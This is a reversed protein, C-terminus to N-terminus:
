DRRRAHPNQPRPLGLHDRLTNGEYERRFSGRAQLEPIVKSAFTELGRPESPARIVFGDCAEESVWEEIRDAIEAPSGCLPAGHSAVRYLRLIEGLPKGTRVLDAAAQFIDQIYESKTPLLELPVPHDLPLGTLDVGLDTKLQQLKVVNSVRNELDSYYAEAEAKTDGVVVTLFPLIKVGAPDRGAASVRDRMDKYFGQATRKDRSLSIVVDATDAAFKKGPGSSGAQILVPYGQPPRAINLAGEVKIHRGTYTVPHFKGPDFYYGTKPDLVFADDEYTDWLAHLVDIYEKARSYREEHSLIKAEGFNKATESSYSTVVNWGARGHSVHDLSALQRAINYPESYSTSITGALGIKSTVQSLASFFMLPEISNMHYPNRSWAEVNDTHAGLADARFLIDLKASEAIKASRQFHEIQTAVDTRHLSWGSPHTGYNDLAYGLHVQKM